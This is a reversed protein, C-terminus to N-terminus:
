CLPEVPALRPTADSSELWSGHREEWMEAAHAMALWAGWHPNRDQLSIAMAIITARRYNWNLRNEM